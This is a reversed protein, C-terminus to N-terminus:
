VELIEKRQNPYSAKWIRETQINNQHVQQPTLNGISMHPREQNYLDVAKKLMEKAQEIDEVEYFQLYEDKLIGNLREAIANDTPESSEPWALKYKM